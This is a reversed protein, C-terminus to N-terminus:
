PSPLHLCCVKNKEEETYAKYEEVIKVFVDRLKALVEDETPGKLLNLILSTWLCM